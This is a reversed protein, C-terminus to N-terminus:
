AQNSRRESRLVAYAYESGWAGKFWINEIFHAERRMGVRQLLRASALNEADCTACVRHLHLDNFLYDLLCKVAEAAYGQKQFARAFTFGIQAQQPDDALVQFACDGILGPELQREVAIQVWTGPTGAIADQMEDLFARAQDLSYPATWSQYRAVQPDSRYASFAPLDTEQFPRLLLRQTKLPANV